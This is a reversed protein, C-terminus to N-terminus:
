SSAPTPYLGRVCWRVRWLGYFPSSNRLTKGQRICLIIYKHNNTAHQVDFRMAHRGNRWAWYFLRKKLEQIQKQQSTVKVLHEHHTSDHEAPEGRVMQEAM